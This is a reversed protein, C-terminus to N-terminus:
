GLKNLEYVKNSMTELYTNKAKETAKLCQNRLKDVLFRDAPICGNKIFYKYQLNQRKIRRKLEKTIWLTM